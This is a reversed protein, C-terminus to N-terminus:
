GGDSSLMVLLFQSSTLLLTSDQNVEGSSQSQGITLSGEKKAAKATERFREFWEGEFGADRAIAANGKAQLHEYDTMINGTVM